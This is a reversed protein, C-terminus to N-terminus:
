VRAIHRATAVWSVSVLCAPALQVRVAHVDDCVCALAPVERELQSSCRSNALTASARAGSKPACCAQALRARELQVVEFLEQGLVQLVLGAGHLM